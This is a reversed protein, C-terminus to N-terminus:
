NTMFFFFFRQFRDLPKNTWQMELSIDIYGPDRGLSLLLPRHLCLLAPETVGARWRQFPPELEASTERAALSALGYSPFTLHRPWRSWSSRRISSPSPELVQVLLQTSLLWSRDKSSVECLFRVSFIVTSFKGVEEPHFYLLFVLTYM